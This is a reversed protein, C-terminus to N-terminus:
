LGKADYWVPSRAPVVASWCRTCCFVFIALFCRLSPVGAFFAAASFDIIIKLIHAVYVAICVCHPKSHRFKYNRQFLLRSSIKSHYVGLYSGEPVLVCWMRYLMSYM